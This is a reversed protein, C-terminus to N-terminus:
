KVTIELEASGLNHRADLARVAIVHEGPALKQLEIRFPERATDFLDDLPYSPQWKHGDVNFELQTIPGLSDQAVGSVTGSKADYRLELVRPAHNDVLVPESLLTADLSRGAPNDLEDSAAVQVRYYGDAISDTTWDYSSETLVQTEQLIPRLQKGSEPRYFLRFRLRDGDPNEAKWKATYVSSPAPVVSGDAAAKEKGPTAAPRKPAVSLERLTVPQNAPLYYARMAYIVTGPEAGLRARLQLFRAAPSRIPGPQTLESSWDTWSADPKQTNGSRTQFRLKGRGRWTLQGWRSQFQADLVKSTWLAERAPGPLVEYLAAGDGTVFLPRKGVLDLALVQREDVDVWLAHEGSPEVRYIHGEKGTAAYIVGDPGWQVSTIHGQASEFVREARGARDVRWLAGKGPKPPEM